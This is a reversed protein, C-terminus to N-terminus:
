LDGLDNPVEGFKKIIKAGDFDWTAFDGTRSFAVTGVHGPKRSLAEARVRAEGNVLSVLLLRGPMYRINIASTAGISLRGGPGFSDTALLAPSQMM